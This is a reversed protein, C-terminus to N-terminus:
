YLNGQRQYIGPHLDARVERRLDLAHIHGIHHIRDAGPHRTFDNVHGIFLVPLMYLNIHLSCWAASRGYTRETSTIQVIGCDAPNNSDHVLINVEREQKRGKRTQDFYSPYRGAESQRALLLRWKRYRGSSRAISREEM